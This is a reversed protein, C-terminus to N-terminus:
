WYKDLSMEGLATCQTGFVCVKNLPVEAIKFLFPLNQGGGTKNKCIWTFCDFKLYCAWKDLKFPFAVQLFM